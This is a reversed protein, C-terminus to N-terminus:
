INSNLIQLTYACRATANVRDHPMGLVFQGESGSCATNNTQRSQSSINRAGDSKAAAILKTFVIDDPRIFIIVVVMFFTFLSNYNGRLQAIQLLLLIFESVVCLCVNRDSTVDQCHICGFAEQDGAHHHM